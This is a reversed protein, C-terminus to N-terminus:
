YLEECASVTFVAGSETQVTVRDGRRRLITVYMGQGVAAQQSKTM